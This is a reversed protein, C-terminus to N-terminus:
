RVLFSLSGGAAPVRRSGVSTSAVPEVVGEKPSCLAVPKATTERGREATAAAATTESRTGEQRSGVILRDLERTIWEIEYADLLPIASRSEATSSEGAAARDDLLRRSPRRATGHHCRARDAAKALPLETTPAVSSSSVLCTRRDM